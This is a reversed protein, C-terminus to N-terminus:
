PIGRLGNRLRSSSSSLCPTSAVRSAGGTKPLPRPDRPRSRRGHLHSMSPSALHPSHHQTGQEGGRPLGDTTATATSAAAIAKVMSFTQPGVATRIPLRTPTSANNPSLTSMEIKQPCGLPHPAIQPHRSSTVPRTLPLPTRPQRCTQRRYLTPCREAPFLELVLPPRSSRPPLM